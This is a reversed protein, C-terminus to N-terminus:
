VKMTASQFKGAFTQRVDTSLGCVGTSERLLLPPCLQIKNLTKPNWDEYNLSLLQPPSSLPLTSSVMSVSSSSTELWIEGKAIEFM